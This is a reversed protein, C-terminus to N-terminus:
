QPAVEDLVQALQASATSRLHHEAIMARGKAGLARRQRQDALLDDLRAALATPGAEPMPHTGFTVDRVGPRNQAVVPLGHAQAELYSLGFAENVGPWFLLSARAYHEGMHGPAIAGLMDVRKGFPAMLTAVQGRAAGEGVISLSWDPAQLRHLTEAILEYSQLKDGIRLMGVALMPGDCAASEPLDLRDLFPRLAIIRQAKPAYARLAQGDRETLHFIVCAADSAAEAAEAFRAWPGNLRKRARTSEIQLYPIKLAQAVKPGLLDPAKYYNHYTIWARWRASQPDALLRAVELEAARALANQREEDGDPDYLRLESVLVVEEGIDRLASILARGMARDGSPTGHTPAKLPAYFAIM